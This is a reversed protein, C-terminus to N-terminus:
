GIEGGPTIPGLNLNIIIEHLYKVSFTIESNETTCDDDPLGACPM